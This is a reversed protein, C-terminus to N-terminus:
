EKWQMVYQGNEFELYQSKHPPYIKTMGCFQTLAEGWTKFNSNPYYKKILRSLVAREEPFKAPYRYVLLAKDTSRIALLRVFNNKKDIRYDYIRVKYM